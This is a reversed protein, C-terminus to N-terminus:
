ISLLNVISVGASVVTIIAAIAQILLTRRSAKAARRERLEEVLDNYSFQVNDAKDELSRRLEDESMNSPCRNMPNM